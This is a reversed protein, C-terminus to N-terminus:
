HFKFRSLGINDQKSQLKEEYTRRGETKMVQLLIDSWTDIPGPLCWHVCDNFLTTNENPKHGYRGPHGDPRLLMAPTLDLLRFRKGTKKAEQEAVKFEEIQTMYIELNLGDMSVENSKFPKTRVCDGGDNWSGNEFHTPSYTRLYTVGKFNKLSNIAKFATRFAKKYGFTMPYDTINEIQCFRCGVIRGKEYYIGPRSFWHGANIIVHDFHEIRSTWKTDFEDLYLNFLGAHTSDNFNAEETKVLFPTSFTSLTFNYSVYKWRIFNQDSTYSNEVPFEVPSLMCILSQLQNRGLSDGVFTLSKDRVLELFQYPNFRPLECEDPKWKWKIYDLDPKGYKVCNQHEHIAWCSENTYYPEDHSRVWEGTFIDCDEHETIVISTINSHDPSTKPFPSEPSPSEPLTPKTSSFTHLPYYLPILTLLLLTTTFFIILKSFKSHYKNFPNTHNTTTNNSSKM